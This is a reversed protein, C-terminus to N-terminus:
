SSWFWGRRKGGQYRAPQAQASAWDDRVQEQEQHQEPEQGRQTHVTESSEERGDAFRKKLVIKTTITGDPAVTRQTTTLTSLISQKTTNPPIPAPSSVPNSELHEYIDMESEENDDPPNLNTQLHPTSEHTREPPQQQQDFLHSPFQTHKPTPPDDHQDEHDHSYEYSPEDNTPLRPCSPETHRSMTEEFQQQTIPIKNREWAGPTPCRPEENREMSEELQQQTIPIRHRGLIGRMPEDSRMCHPRENQEARVLDDYAARWPVGAKKMERNQELARPSYAEESTSADAPPPWQWSRSWSWIRPKDDDAQSAPYNNFKAVNEVRDDWAKEDFEAALRKAEAQMRLLAELQMWERAREERSSGADNRHDHDFPRPFGWDWMWGWEQGKQNALREVMDVDRRGDIQQRDHVASDGIIERRIEDAKRDLRMLEESNRLVTQVDGIRFSERGEGRLEAIETEIDHLKDCKRQDAKGFLCRERAQHANNYNALTAPLTFVTNLLSSVQSDAFRRFAIFPNDEPRSSDRRPHDNNNAM